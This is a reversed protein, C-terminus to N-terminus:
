SNQADITAIAALNVIDEVEDDRQLVHVPEAM